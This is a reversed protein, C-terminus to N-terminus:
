AIITVKAAKTDSADAGEAPALGKVLYEKVRTIAETRWAGGDCEHLSIFPRAMGESGQHARFLYPVIPQGVDRFTRYGALNVPNKVAEESKFTAGQMTAVHQAYGDDVSEHVKESRISATLKLVLEQDGILPVFRTQLAIVFAEHGLKEGLQFEDEDDLLDCVTARLFDARTSFEDDLGAGRVVVETPSVVHVICGSEALRGDPDNRVYDIVADLTEVELLKPLVPPTPLEQETYAGDKDALYVRNVGNIAIVKPEPKKAGERIEKIFTADFDSM